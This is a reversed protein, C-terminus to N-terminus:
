HLRKDINISLVRAELSINKLDLSLRAFYIFWNPILTIEDMSVM